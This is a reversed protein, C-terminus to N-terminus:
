RCHEFLTLDFAEAMMRYGADGPHLLDPSDVEPQFRTPNAPDRTVADFDVVADFEGSTRIWANTATRIAEGAARYVASGGYPTLTCGIVRVGRAHALAIMQRYAFILDDAKLTPTAGRTAGTIDNIGEMITVWQVGPQALAHTQFRVLGSNGDGLLRNGSIGANIVGLHRTAPNEQLRAALRAPWMALKDPTSQDGDTISDGFTVLTGSEAAALVDVGALWFYSELVAQPEAIERSGTFDGEASLLTPRLGFLHSTPTPNTGPTYVSIVLDTQAPVPLPLPDSLLTAGAFLTASTQGSFTLVRNSREEIAGGEDAALALRASGIAVSTAGLANTFRVRVARGAVSTRVVMRVTQNRIVPVRPPIPFRRAPGTAAVPPVSAPPTAAPAPAPAGGSPPPAIWPTQATGWTAVWHSTDATEVGPANPAAPSLRPLALLLAALFVFRPAGGRAKAPPRCPVPRLPPVRSVSHRIM